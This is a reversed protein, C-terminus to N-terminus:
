EVDPAYLEEFVHDPMWTEYEDSTGLKRVVLYGSFIRHHSPPPKMRRAASNKKYRTDYDANSMEAARVTQGFDSAIDPDIAIFRPLSSADIFPRNFDYGMNDESIDTTQCALLVTGTINAFRAWM